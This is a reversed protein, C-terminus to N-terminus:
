QFWCDGELFQSKWVHLAQCRTHESFGGGSTYSTSFPVFSRLLSKWSEFPSVERWTTPLPHQQPNKKPARKSQFGSSNPPPSKSGFQEAVSRSKHQQQHLHDDDDHCTLRCAAQTSYSKQSVFRMVVQLPPAAWALGRIGLTPEGELQMMKPMM